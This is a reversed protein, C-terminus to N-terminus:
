RLWDYYVGNRRDVRNESGGCEKKRVVVWRGDGLRM